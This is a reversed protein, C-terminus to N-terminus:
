AAAAAAAAAAAPAAGPVALRQVRLEACARWVWRGHALPRPCSGCTCGGACEPVCCRRRYQSPAFASSAEGICTGGGLAHALHAARLGALPLWGQSGGNYKRRRMGATRQSQRGSPGRRAGEGGEEGGDGEESGGAGPGGTSKRRRQSAPEKGAGCRRRRRCRLQCGVGRLAPGGGGSALAAARGEGGQRRRRQREELPLPGRWRGWGRWSAWPLCAARGALVGRGSEGAAAFGEGGARAPACGGEARGAGYDFDYSQHPKDELLEPPM